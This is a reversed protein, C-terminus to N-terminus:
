AVALTVPPDTLPSAGKGPSRSPRYAWSRAPKARHRSRPGRAEAMEAVRRVLDANTPRGADKFTEDGLGIRVHGDLVIAQAAM